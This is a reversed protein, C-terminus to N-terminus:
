YTSVGNTIVVKVISGVDNAMWDLAQTRISGSEWGPVLNTLQVEDFTFTISRENIGTQFNSLKYEMAQANAGPVFVKGRYTQDEYYLTLNGGASADDNTVDDPALGAAGSTGQAYHLVANKAIAISSETTKLIPASSLGGVTNALKIAVNNRVFTQSKDVKTNNTGLTVAGGSESPKSMFNVTRTVLGELGSSLEWNNLMAMRWRLSPSDVADKYTVSITPHNNNGRVYTITHDWLQLSGRKVTVPKAGLAAALEVPILDTYIAGEYGGEGHLSQLTNKALGWNSGAAGEDAAQGPVDEIDKNTIRFFNTPALGTGKATELAIGIFGTRGTVKAM